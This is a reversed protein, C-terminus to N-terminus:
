GMRSNGCLSRRRARAAAMLMIGVEVPAAFSDAQYHRMKFALQHSGSIRGVGIDRRTSPRRDPFSCWWRSTFPASTLQGPASFANEIVSFVRNYRAVHQMVRVAKDTCGERFHQVSGRLHHSTHRCTSGRAITSRMASKAFITIVYARSYYNSGRNASPRCCGWDTLQFGCKWPLVGKAPLETQSRFRTGLRVM